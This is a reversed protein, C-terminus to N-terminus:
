LYDHLLENQHEGPFRASDLYEGYSEWSGSPESQMGAQFGKDFSVNAPVDKSDWHLVLVRKPVNNQQAPLLLLVLAGVLCLSPHRNRSSGPSNQTLNSM